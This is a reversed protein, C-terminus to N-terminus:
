NLLERFLIDFDSPINMQLVDAKVDQVIVITDIADCPLNLIDLVIKCSHRLAEVTIVSQSQDYYCIVADDWEMMCGTTANMHELQSPHDIMCGNCNQTLRRRMETVVLYTTVMKTIDAITPLIVQRTEFVLNEQDEGYIFEASNKCEDASFYWVPNQVGAYVWSHQTSTRDEFLRKKCKEQEKHGQQRRKTTKKKKKEDYINNEMLAGWSEEDFNMRNVYAKGDKGTREFKFCAYRKGLYDRIELQDRSNIEFIGGDKSKMMDAIMVQLYVLLLAHKLVM